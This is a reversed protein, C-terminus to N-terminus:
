KEDSALGTRVRMGNFDISAFNGAPVNIRVCLDNRTAIEFIVVM